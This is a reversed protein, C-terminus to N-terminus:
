AASDSPEFVERLTEYLVRAEQEYLTSRQIQTRGNPQDTYTREISLQVWKASKHVEFRTVTTNERQRGLQGRVDVDVCVMAGDLKTKVYTSRKMAM